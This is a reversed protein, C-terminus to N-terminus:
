QAEDTPYYYVYTVAYNAFAIEGALKCQSIQAKFFSELQVPYLKECANYTAMYEPGSYKILGTDKNQADLSIVMNSLKKRATEYCSFSANSTQDQILNCSNAIERIKNVNSKFTPEDMRPKAITPTVIATCTLLLLSQQLIKM